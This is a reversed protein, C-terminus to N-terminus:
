VLPEDQARRALAEDFCVSIPPHATIQGTPSVEIEKVQDPTCAPKSASFSRAPDYRSVAPAFVAALVVTAIVVVGFGGLPKRVFFSGTSHLARQHWPRDSWSVVLGGHPIDLITPDAAM